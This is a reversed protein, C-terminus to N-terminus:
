RIIKELLKTLEKAEKITLQHMPEELADIKDDIKALLKLGSKSIKIDVERRNNENLCREVYGAVRLREVIRSVDSMKDLMREKILILNCVNPHQGRLIRLVNFQQMTISFDKFFNQQLSTLQNCAYVLAVNTKHYESRFKTQVIAESITKTM